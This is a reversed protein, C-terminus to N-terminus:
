PGSSQGFHVLHGFFALSDLSGLFTDKGVSRIPLDVRPEGRM